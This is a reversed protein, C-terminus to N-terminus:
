PRPERIPHQVGETTLDNDVNEATVIERYPSTLEALVNPNVTPKKGVRTLFREDAVFTLIVTTSLKSPPGIVVVLHSLM